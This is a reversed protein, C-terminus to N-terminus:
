PTDEMPAVANEYFARLNVVPVLGSDGLVALHPDGTILYDAGSSRLLAVLYDDKPDDPVTREIEVEDYLIGKSSLGVLFEAVEEITAHRRFRPRMLVDRLEGLLRESVILDFREEDAARVIMAPYGLDSIRSSVLVNPDM